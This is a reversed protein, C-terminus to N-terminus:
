NKLYAEKLLMIASQGLSIKQGKKKREKMQKELILEFVNKPIERLTVQPTQGMAKLKADFTCM